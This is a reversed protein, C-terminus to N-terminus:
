TCSPTENQHTRAGPGGKLKATRASTQAADVEAFAPSTDRRPPRFDWDARCFAIKAALQTQRAAGARVILEVNTLGRSTNVPAASACAAAMM